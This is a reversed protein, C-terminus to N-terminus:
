CDAFKEYQVPSEPMDVPEGDTGFAPDETYVLPQLLTCDAGM